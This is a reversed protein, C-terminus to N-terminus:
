KIDEPNSARGHRVLSWMTWRIRGPRLRGDGLMERQLWDHDSEHVCILRLHVDQSRGPHTIPLSTPSFLIVLRPNALGSRKRGCFKRKNQALANHVARASAASTSNLQISPPPTDRLRVLRRPVQPAHVGYDTLQKTPPRADVVLTRNRLELSDLRQEAHGSRENRHQPVASVADRPRPLCLARAVCNGLEGAAVDTRIARALICEVRVIDTPGIYAKGLRGLVEWVPGDVGGYGFATPRRESATTRFTSGLCSAPDLPM